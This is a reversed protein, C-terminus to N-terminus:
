VEKLVKTMVTTNDPGFAHGSRDPEEWYLAAFVVGQEQHFQSLTM